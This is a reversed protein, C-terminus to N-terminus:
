DFDKKKNETSKSYVKKKLNCKVQVRVSGMVGSWDWYWGLVTGGFMLPCSPYNKDRTKKIGFNFAKIKIM